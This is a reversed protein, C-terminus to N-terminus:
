GLKLEVCGRGEIGYCLRHDYPPTDTAAVTVEYGTLPWDLCVGGGLVGPVPICAWGGPM